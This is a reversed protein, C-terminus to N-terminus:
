PALPRPQPRGPSWNLDRVLDVTERAIQLEENARIVLVEPRSDAASIRRVGGDAPEANRDRDLNLGLQPLRACIAERMAADNEGVGGTFVLADLPWVLGAYAGVYKAVRHAYMERAFAADADGKAAREAVRRMDAEGSIAKVGSEHNLLHDIDDATMGARMLAVVIAPDIDGARTQMMVGELPTLGMSTDVSRGARVATVSAGAGLHAVILNLEEEPRAFHAAAAALSWACSTGHFGYRRIGHRQAVDRPLPYTAAVSPMTRHFATDFVAIQPVGPRAKRAAAIGKLNAPNHLPALGVDAAITATVADDILVPASFDAGGHVVRHGIADVRGGDAAMASLAAFIAALGREYGAGDGAEADIGSIVGMAVVAEGPMDFLKYKISSSGSNLVLVRM